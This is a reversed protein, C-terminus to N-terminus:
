GAPGPMGRPVPRRPRRRTHSLTLSPCHSPPYMHSHRLAGEAPRGQCAERCQGGQDGAHTHSLTLSPCHSPPYMHSHRLAGEAPRGQCAERCEGGQDGAHTHSLNRTHTHTHTHTHTSSLSIQMLWTKESQEGWGGVQPSKRRGPSFLKEHLPIKLPPPVAMRPQRFMLTWDVKAKWPAGATAEAYYVHRHLELPLCTCQSLLNICSLFLTQSAGVRFCLRVRLL